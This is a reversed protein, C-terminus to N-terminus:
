ALSKLKVSFMRLAKPQITVPKCKLFSVKTTSHIFSPNYQKLCQFSSPFSDYSVVPFYLWVFTQVHINIVAKNTTALFWFCVFHGEIPSRIPLSYYM